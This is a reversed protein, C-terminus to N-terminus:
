RGGRNNFKLFSPKGNKKSNEGDIFEKEISESNFKNMLQLKKALKLGAISQNKYLSSHTGNQPLTASTQGDMKVLPSMLGTKGTENLADCNEYNAFELEINPNSYRANPTRNVSSTKFENLMQDSKSSNVQFKGNSTNNNSNNNSPNSSSVAIFNTSSKSRKQHRNLLDLNEKLDALLQMDSNIPTSSASNTLKGSNSNSSAKSNNLKKSQLLKALHKRNNYYYNQKPNPNPNTASGDRNPKSDASHTKNEHQHSNSSNLYQHQHQVPQQNASHPNTASSPAEKNSNLNSFSKSHSHSTKIKAAHELRPSTPTSTSSSSSLSSHTSSDSVTTVNKSASSSSSSLINKYCFLQFNKKLFSSKIKAVM